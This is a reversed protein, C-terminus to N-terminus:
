THTHACTGALGENSQHNLWWSNNRSDSSLNIPCGMMTSLFMTEQVRERFEARPIEYIHFGRVQQSKDSVLIAISVVRQLVLPYSGMM